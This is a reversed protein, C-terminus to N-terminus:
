VLLRKTIQLRLWSEVLNLRNPLVRRKTNFTDEPQISVRDCTLLYRNLFFSFLCVTFFDFKDFFDSGEYKDAASCTYKKDASVVGAYALAFAGAKLLFSSSM